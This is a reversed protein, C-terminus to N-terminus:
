ILREGQNIFTKDPCDENQEIPHIACPLLKDRSAYICGHCSSKINRAEEIQWYLADLEKDAKNYLNTSILTIAASSLSAFASFHFVCKSWRNIHPFSGLVAGLGILTIITSISAIRELINTRKYLKSRKQILEELM